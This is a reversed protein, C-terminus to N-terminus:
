FLLNVMDSNLDNYSVVEALGELPNFHIGFQVLKAGNSVM